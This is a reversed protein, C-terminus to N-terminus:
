GGRAVVGVEANMMIGWHSREFPTMSELPPNYRDAAAVIAAAEYHCGGCSSNTVAGADIIAEM